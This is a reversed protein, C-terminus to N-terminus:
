ADGRTKRGLMCPAPAKVLAGLRVTSLTVARYLAAARSEGWKGPEVAAGAHGAGVKRRRAAARTPNVRFAKAAAFVAAAPLPANVDLIQIL